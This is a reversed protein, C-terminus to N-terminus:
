DEIEENTEDENTEDEDTEDEEDEDIDNIDEDDVTIESVTISWDVFDAVCEVNIKRNDWWKSYKVIWKRVFSAWGEDEDNWDIDVIEGREVDEIYNATVEECWKIRKEETDIKSTDVEYQCEGSRLTDDDCTVGSPFSCEGYVATQSHILSHTWWKDICDQTIQQLAGNENELAQAIEQTCDCEKGCWALALVCSSLVFVLLKKEM